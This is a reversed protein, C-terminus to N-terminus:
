VLSPPARWGRPVFTGAASEMFSSGEHYGRPVVTGAASAEAECRSASPSLELNSETFSSGEHRRPGGSQKCRQSDVARDKRFSLNLKPLKRPLSWLSCSM